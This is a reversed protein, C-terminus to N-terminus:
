NLPSLSPIVSQSLSNLQDLPIITADEPASITPASNFQSLDAQFSVQINLPEQKPLSSTGSVAALASMDFPWNLSFTLEHTYHDDLGISQNMEFTFGDFLTQYLSIVQTMTSDDLGSTGASQELQKRLIAQFEESAFLGGLDLSTKFVAVKQDSVTADEQREISMYKQVFATDAPNLGQLTNLDPLGAMQQDLLQRYYGALDFGFWGKPFDSKTDLEALKGLNLYAMGNVLRASFGAKEPLNTDSNAMMARMDDSFFMLFNGDASIARIADELIQPLQDMHESLDGPTFLLPSLGSSDLAYSGNGTMRFNLSNPTSDPINSLNLELQFQFGASKVERMATASQALLDCDDKALKGCSTTPNDQAQTVSGILMLTLLTVLILFKRM